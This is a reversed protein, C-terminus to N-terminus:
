PQQSTLTQFAAKTLSPYILTLPKATSTREVYKGLRYKITALFGNVTLLSNLLQPDVIEQIMVIKSSRSLPIDAGLKNKANLDHRSVFRNPTFIHGDSYDIQLTALDNFKDRGGPNISIVM